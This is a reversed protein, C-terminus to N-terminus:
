EESVRLKTPNKQKTKNQKTKKHNTIQKELCLKEPCGQSAQLDAYRQRGLAPILPM